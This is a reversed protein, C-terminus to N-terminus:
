ATGNMRDSEDCRATSLAPLQDSPNLKWPWWVVYGVLTVVSLTLPLLSVTSSLLQSKTGSRESQSSSHRSMKRAVGVARSLARKRPALKDVESEGLM